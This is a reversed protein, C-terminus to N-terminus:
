SKSNWITVYRNQKVAKPEQGTTSYIYKPAQEPQAESADAEEVLRNTTGTPHAQQSRRMEPLISPAYAPPPPVLYAHGTRPRAKGKGKAQADPQIVLNSSVAMLAATSFLLASHKLM